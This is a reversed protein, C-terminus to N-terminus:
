LGDLRGRFLLFRIMAGHLKTRDVDWEHAIFPLVTSDTRWSDSLIGIGSIRINHRCVDVLHGAIINGVYEEIKAFFVLVVLAPAIERPGGIKRFCLDLAVIDDTLGEASISIDGLIELEDALVHQWEVVVSGM